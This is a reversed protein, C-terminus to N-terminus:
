QNGCDKCCYACVDRNLLVRAVACIDIILLVRVVSCFLCGQEVFGDHCHLM